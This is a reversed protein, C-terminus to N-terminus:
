DDDGWLTRNSLVGSDFTAHRGVEASGKVSANVYDTKSIEYGAYTGKTVNGGPLWGTAESENMIESRTWESSLNDGLEAVTREKRASLSTTEITYEQGTTFQEGIQDASQKFRGQVSRKLYVQMAVIVVIIVALLVAYELLSQAKKDQFRM